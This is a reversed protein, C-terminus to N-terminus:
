NGREGLKQIDGCVYLVTYLEAIQITLDSERKREREREAQTSLSAQFM